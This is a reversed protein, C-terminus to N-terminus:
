LEKLEELVKQIEGSTFGVISVKNGDRTDKLYVNGSDRTAQYKCGEIEYDDIDKTGVLFNYFWRITFGMHSLIVPTINIGCPAIKNLLESPILLIDGNEQKKVYMTKEM